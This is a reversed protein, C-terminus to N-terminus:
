AGTSGFGGLGRETDGLAAEEDVERVEARTVPAVILQAIRAGHTISFPETGHNILLVQVEGRYDEDITGPANLVTVGHRAALGSRPRVQGEHGPPLAIQLGTPVRAVGGPQLVFPADLCAALDMGAAGRTEYSPVIADPRMKYVRVKPM